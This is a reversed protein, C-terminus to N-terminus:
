QHHTLQGSERKKRLIILGVIVLVAISVAAILMFSGQDVGYLQPEWINTEVLKVSTTVNGYPLQTFSSYEVLVGTDRDWWFEITAYDDTSYFTRDIAYLVTRESGACSRKEVRSIMIQRDSCDIKDNLNSHAPILVHPLAHSISSTEIHHEEQRKDGSDDETISFTVRLDQIDSVEYRVQGSTEEQIITSAYNREYEIWDGPKVEIASVSNTSTVPQVQVVFFPLAFLSLTVLLITIKTCFSSGTKGNQYTVM